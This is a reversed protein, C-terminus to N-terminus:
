IHLIRRKMAAGPSRRSVTETTVGRCKATAIEATCMMSLSHSCQRFEQLVREQCESQNETRASACMGLAEPINQETMVFGSVVLVWHVVLVWQVAKVWRGASWLDIRGECDASYRKNSPGGSNQAGPTALLFPSPEAEKHCGRGPQSRSKEALVEKEGGGGDGQVDRGGQRPGP